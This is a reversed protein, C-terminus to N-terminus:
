FGCPHHRMKALLVDPRQILLKCYPECLSHKYMYIHIYTCKYIYMYIYVCAYVNFIYIYIHIHIHIYIYMALIRVGLLDEVRAQISLQSLLGM